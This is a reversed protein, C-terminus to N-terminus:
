FLFIFWFLFSSDNQWLTTDFIGHIFFYILISFILINKQNNKKYFVLLMLLFFSIFSILGLELYIQILNNHVHPIAWEPYPPFYNQYSLYKEQFNGIGIGGLPNNKIIKGAVRYVVIRSYNSGYSLFSPIKKILFPTLFIFITSLLIFFPFFSYIKKVLFDKKSFFLFIIAIFTGIIAGLSKTFILNIVLLALLIKMWYSSKKNKLLFWVCSIIALSLTIAFHNPSDYFFSLRKDYTLKNTLINFIGFVSIISVSIVFYKWLGIFTLFKKKILFHILFSFIIPLLIFSKLFGLSNTWNQHDLNIFSSFFSSIIFFLLLIITKKKKACYIKFDNAMNKKFILFMANLIAIFILIDLFNVSAGSFFHIKWLFSFHLLFPLYFFLKNM